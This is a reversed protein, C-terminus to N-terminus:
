SPTAPIFTSLTGEALGPADGVRFTYISLPPAHGTRRVSVVIPQAVPLWPTRFVVRRAGVIYGVRPGRGGSRGLAELVAATQAAAELALLAAARRGDAVPNDPPVVAISTAQGSSVEVIADVLRAPAAHPLLEAPPPYPGPPRREDRIGATKPSRDGLVIEGQSVTEEGRRWEFRVALDQEKTFLEVVDGPVIPRRLRMHKVNALPRDDHRPILALHAIAPLVPHGPFHGALYRSGPQLELRLTV